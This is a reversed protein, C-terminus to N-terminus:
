SSPHNLRLYENMTNIYQCGKATRTRLDVALTKVAKQIIVEKNEIIALSDNESLEYLKSKVEGLFHRHLFLKHWEVFEGITEDIIASARPIEAKRMAFTKDLISSIEDVDMLTIGPISKISPDISKPVSLDLLLRAKQATFFEPIINFEEATTSAILIDSENALEDLTEYPVSELGHTKAFEAAKHFTRNTIRVKAGPFYESINKAVNCGFKGAGVLLINKHRIDAVKEKIVEIAAYAVSVTGTSLKTESKVRKSAQLAFNVLRDMLSSLLGKEKAYRAAKKLQMLIEYDGIIQSDLGSAVKFLHQVAKMGQHVYGYEKFHEVANGTAACLIEILIDPQCIGYVETRNCTSLVLVDQLHKQLSLESIIDHKANCVAFDSRTSTDSKHYNIGIIVFGDLGSCVDYTSSHVM